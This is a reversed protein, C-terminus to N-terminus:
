DRQLFLAMQETLKKNMLNLRELKDRLINNEIKLQSIERALKHRDDLINSQFFEEVVARLETETQSKVKKRLKINEASIAAASHINKQKPQKINGKYLLELEVNKESLWKCLAPQRRANIISKDKGALRAITSLVLKTDKICSVQNTEFITKIRNYEKVASEYLSQTTKSGSQVWIPEEQSCDVKIKLKDRLTM